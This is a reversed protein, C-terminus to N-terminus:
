DGCCNEIVARFCGCEPNYCIAKAGQSVLETGCQPCFNIHPVAASQKDPNCGASCVPRLGREKQGPLYRWARDQVIDKGCVACKDAWDWGM